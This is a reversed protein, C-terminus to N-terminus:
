GGEAESLAAQALAETAIKGGEYLLECEVDYDGTKYTTIKAVYLSPNAYYEVAERLRAERQQAETLASEAAALRARLDANEAFLQDIKTSAVYKAFEPRGAADALAESHYGDKSKVSKGDALIEWAWYSVVKYTRFEAKQPFNEATAARENAAALQSRLDTLEAEQKAIYARIFTTYVSGGVKRDIDDLEAQINTPFNFGWQWDDGGGSEAQSKVESM